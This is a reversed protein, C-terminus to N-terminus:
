NGAFGLKELQSPSVHGRLTYSFAVVKLADSDVECTLAVRQFGKPTDIVVGDGVLSTDSIMAPSLASNAFSTARLDYGFQLKEESRCLYLVRQRRPMKKWADYDSKSLRAMEAGSYLKKAQIARKLAVSKPPQPETVLAAGGTSSGQSSSASQSQSSQQAPSPKVAPVVIQPAVNAEDKAQEALPQQQLDATPAQAAQQAQPSNPDTSPAQPQQVQSDSPENTALVDPATSFAKATPDSAPKAAKAQQDKVDAQQQAAQAQQAQTAQAKAAADVAAKAEAQQEASNDNPQESAKTQQTTNADKQDGKMDPLPTETASPQQEAKEVPKASGADDAKPAPKEAQEVPKDAKAEASKSAPKEAQEKGQPDSQKPPQEDSKKGRPQQPDDKAEATQQAPKDDPKQTPKPPQDPKENAKTALEQKEEPQPVLEVNVSQEPKAQPPAPLLPM